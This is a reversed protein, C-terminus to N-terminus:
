DHPLVSDAKADNEDQGDEEEEKEKAADVPPFDVTIEDVDVDPKEDGDDEDRGKMQEGPGIAPLEEKVLLFFVDAKVM